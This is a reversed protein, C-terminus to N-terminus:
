GVPGHMLEHRRIADNHVSSAIIEYFRLPMCGNGLIDSTRTLLHHNRFMSPHSVKGEWTWFSGTEAFSKSTIVKLMGTVSDKASITGEIEWDVSINAMDRSITLMASPSVLYFIVCTQVEGPHMALVTTYIKQRQLEAAM